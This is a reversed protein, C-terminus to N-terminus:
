WSGSRGATYGQRFGGVATAALRVDSRAYRGVLAWLASETAMLRTFGAVALCEDRDDGDLDACSLPASAYASAAARVFDHIDRTDQASRDGRTIGLERRVEFWYRCALDLFSRFSRRQQALAYGLRLSARVVVAAAAPARNRTDTKEPAYTM